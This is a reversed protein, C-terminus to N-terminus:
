RALCDNRLHDPAHECALLGCCYRRFRPHQPDWIAGRLSSGYFGVVGIQPDDNNIMEECDAERLPLIPCGPADQRFRERAVLASSSAM